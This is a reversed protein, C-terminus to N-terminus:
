ALWNTVWQNLWQNILIIDQNPWDRTWNKLNHTTTPNFLSLSLLSRLIIVIIVIVTNLIITTLIHKKFSFILNVIKKTPKLLSYLIIKFNLHFGIWHRIRKIKFITNSVRFGFAQLWGLHPSLKGFKKNYNM